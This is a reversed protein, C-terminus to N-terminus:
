RKIKKVVFIILCIIVYWYVASIILSSLLRLISFSTQPSNLFPYFLPNFYTFGTISKIGINPMNALVSAILLLIIKGKTPEIFDRINITWSNSLYNTKPITSFVEKNKELIQELRSAIIKKEGSMEQPLQKYLERIKMYCKKSKDTKFYQLNIEMKQLLSNIREVRPDISQKKKGLFNLIPM